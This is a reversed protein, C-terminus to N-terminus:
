YDKFKRMWQPWDEPKVGGAKTWPGTTNFQKHWKLTWPEKLGIKRVSWDIFLANIYGDHRNIVLEGGLGSPERPPPGIRENMLSNAPQACDFLLPMNHFGRLCFVDTYPLDREPGFVGQGEFGFSCIIGNMGYSGLFVPGPYTIQWARFTSGNIGRLTLVGNAHVTFSGATNPDVPRVAMPCRAIGETRVGHFRWYGNPDDDRLYRGSLLGLIPDADRRPLRGQNEELYLDFTTAWQRLNALCAVARAQKRARQLSPLLIAMLLAIIAIVVLLEILTFGTQNIISSQHHIISSRRGISSEPAPSSVPGGPGPYHRRPGEAAQNPGDTAQVPLLPMVENGDM